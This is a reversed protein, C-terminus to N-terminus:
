GGIAAIEEFLINPGEGRETLKLEEPEISGSPPGKCYRQSKPSPVVEVLCIWRMSIRARPDKRKGDCQSYRVLCRNDLEFDNSIENFLVGGAAFIVLGTM